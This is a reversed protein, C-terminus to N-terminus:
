VLFLNSFNTCRIPKIILIFSKVRRHLITDRRVAAKNHLFGADVIVDGLGSRWNEHFV